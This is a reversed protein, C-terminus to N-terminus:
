EIGIARMAGILNSISEADPTRLHAIADRVRKACVCARIAHEERRSTTPLGGNKSMFNIDSYELEDPNKERVFVRAKERTQTALDITGRGTKWPSKRLAGDLIAIVEPRQAEMWPTLAKLSARWFRKRLRREAVAKELEDGHLRLYAERLTHADGGAITRTGDVWTEHRWRVEDGAIFEPLKDALDLWDSEKIRMLQEAFFVDFGAFESVIAKYLRTQGPGVNEGMRLSVYAGIEDANLGGDFVLLEGAGLRQPRTLEEAHLTVLLRVIGESAWEATEAFALAYAECSKRGAETQPDLIVVTPQEDKVIALAQGIIRDFGAFHGALDSAIDTHDYVKFTLIRHRVGERVARKVGERLLNQTTIPTNIVVNRSRGLAIILDDVFKAPGPLSWYLGPDYENARTM